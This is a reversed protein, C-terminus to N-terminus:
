LEASRQGRQMMAEVASRGSAGYERPPMGSGDDKFRTYTMRAPMYVNPPPPGDIQEQLARRFEAAHRPYLHSRMSDISLDRLQEPPRYRGGHYFRPM